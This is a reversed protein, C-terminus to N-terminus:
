SGALGAQPALVNSIRRGVLQRLREPLALLAPTVIL